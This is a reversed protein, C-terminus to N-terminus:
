WIFLTNSPSINPLHQSIVHPALLKHTKRFVGRIQDVIKKPEPRQAGDIFKGDFDVRRNLIGEVLAFESV